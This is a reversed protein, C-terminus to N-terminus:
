PHMRVKKARKERNAFTFASLLFGMASVWENLRLGWLHHAEDIRLIFLNGAQLSRRRSLFILLLASAICWISEYLFTPHFTAFNAFGVPRLERPIELGWPLNTPRGFLEGNFWNGWRGIAQAILIGPALSDAFIAFSTELELRRFTFFAAATGLGIAGWIGMGGDWIKVANLPHGHAGFYADPSTVVHYVRGGIIGAPIAVISVDTIVDIEGGANAYRRRGIAIAAMVGLLISIAYFHITLPGLEVASHSPTPIFRHM